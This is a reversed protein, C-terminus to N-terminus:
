ELLPIETSPYIMYAIAFAIVSLILGVLFINYCVKLNRYKMGLAQGLFYFDKIMSGYLYDRDNMMERMGWTFDELGM